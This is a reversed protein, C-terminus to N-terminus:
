PKIPRVLALRRVLPAAFVCVKLGFVGLCAV